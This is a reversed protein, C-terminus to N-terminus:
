PYQPEIEQIKFNEVFQQEEFFNMYLSNMPPIEEELLFYIKEIL